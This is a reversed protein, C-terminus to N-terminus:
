VTLVRINTNSIQIEIESDLNINFLPKIFMFSIL